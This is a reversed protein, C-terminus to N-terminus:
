GSLMRTLKKYQKFVENGTVINFMGMFIQYAFDNNEHLMALVLVEECVYVTDGKRKIEWNQGNESASQLLNRVTEM